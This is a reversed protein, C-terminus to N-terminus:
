NKGYNKRLEIMKLNSQALTSGLSIISKKGSGSLGILVIHGKEFIFCRAVKCIHLVADQFLVLNMSTEDLMYENIVKVLKNM